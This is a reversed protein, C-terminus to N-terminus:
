RFCIGDNVRVTLWLQAMTVRTAEYITSGRGSDKREYNTEATILRMAGDPGMVM